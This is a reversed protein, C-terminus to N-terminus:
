PHQPDTRELVGRLIASLFFWRQLRNLGAARKDLEVLWADVSQAPINHLGLAAVQYRFAEVGIDLALAAVRADATKQLWRAFEPPLGIRAIQAHPDGTPADRGAASPDDADRPEGALMGQLLLWRTLETSETTDDSPQLYADAANAITDTLRRELRDRPINDTLATYRDRAEDLLWSAIELPLPIELIPAGLDGNPTDQAATM